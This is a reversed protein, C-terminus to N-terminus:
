PTWAGQISTGNGGTATARYEYAVGSLARFDDVQGDVVVADDLPSGEGTDGVVRRAIANILVSPIGSLAVWVARSIAAAGGTVTITGSGIATAATQIQYWWAITQDDGTTSSAHGIPLFGAPASVTTSDDQKWVALIVVCNDAGPTFGPYAINQASGNLQTVPTGILASGARRFAATQASTTAGVVGGTFAQSPAGEGGGAAKRFLGLNGFTAAVSYGPTPTNPTGTGSNRIAALELLLDDTALGAPLGPNLTTNDAHAATGAAVFASTTENNAVKVRIVGQGPLPTVTLTPAPPEVYDTTFAQTVADGTLGEANRTTVEATWATNDALVYPVDYSMTTTSGVWGSDHVADSGQLLRVRYGTQEAVTWTVTVSSGAVVQAPTPATITPNVKASPVIVLPESYASAVDASDWTKVRYTHNLDSGAGWPTPTPGFSADDVYIQTGNPPNSGITIGFQAFAANVPSSGTFNRRGWVGASLAAPASGTTTIYVMGSTYWDIALFVNSYGGVSLAWLEASYSTSPSVAIAPSRLTSQAPTGSTTQLASGGGSRQQVTNATVAGDFAGWGAVGGTFRDVFGAPLTVQTTATSNKQETSQWTGDSARWYEVTDSGVQRSLAYATQAENVEDPDSFAWNLLLGAAVDAAGGNTYAAGSLDWTPAFPAYALSLQSNVITNPTPTSHALLVDARNNFATGRRISYNDVAAGLIATASVQSWGSWTASARIYDVYYVTSNSTGVAYVRVDQTISNYGLGMSRIVGQPHTPTSRTTTSTNSRNREYTVVTSDGNMRAAMLRTGTWRAPAYDRATFVETISTPNTPTTWGFGTWALKLVWLQTRGFTVWVNPWGSSKGNGSHELEVSPTVRGTGTNATWQRGGAFTNQNLYPAVGPGATVGSLVVGHKGSITAGIAVFGTQWTGSYNVTVFDLGGLASGASGGNSASHLLLEASWSDLNSDYRRYYVRDQSSENTRYVWHLYGSRDIHIVGHEVISARTRSTRLAWSSGNNTSRYFDYQNATTAPVLAYLHGTSSGSDIPPHQTQWDLQTEAPYQLPNGVTTTAVTAM